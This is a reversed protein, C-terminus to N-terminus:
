AHPELQQELSNLLHTWANQIEAEVFEHRNTRSQNAFWIGTWDRVDAKYGKGQGWRDQCQDWYRQDGKLAPTFATEGLVQVDIYFKKSTDDVQALFHRLFEHAPKLQEEALAYRILVRLEELCKETRSVASRRAGFGLGAWYDFNDWDGHRRVSARLSSAYRLADIRETLGADVRVQTRALTRSREFWPVFRETAANFVAKLKLNATNKSLQDATSALTMIQREAEARLTHLREVLANSVGLCDKPSNADLYYVSLGSIGLNALSMEIQTSRISRGEDTSDVSEGTGPDLVTTEVNNKPLVLLIARRAFTRSLGGEKAREIVAQVAADPADGFGSCLVVLSRDDDLYMQLDRRPAAPEDIGRTDVLRVDLDEANLVAGPVSIEIKRPLAFEPHRGFNIESFTRSLWKLEPVSSTRPYSISTLRRRPLELRRLVEIELAERDHHQRVLEEAPDSADKAKSRQLGIMNRIAREIEASIGPGESSDPRATAAYLRLLQDCFDSVHYRIEQDTCPEISIAFEGGRRVHVECITTRGGGTQLVIQKKLEAETSDRLSNETACIATTKGVNPSGLFAISHVVSGLFTATNALAARCSEIQKVFLNKLEPDDKLQELKKLASDAIWLVERSPHRFAPPPLVQWERGLHEAFQKAEVTGIEEAIQRAESIDLSIEGSELRSIRSATFPLKKALDAQSLKADERLRQLQLHLPLAAGM